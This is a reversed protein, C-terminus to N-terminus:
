YGCPDFGGLNAAPGGDGVHNPGGIIDPDYPTGNPYRCTPTPDARYGDGYANTRSQRATAASPRHAIRAHAVHGRHPRHRTSAGAGSALAVSVACTAAWVFSRM